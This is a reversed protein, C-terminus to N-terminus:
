LEAGIAEENTVAISAHEQVLKWAGNERHFVATMRFPVDTGDPLVFTGTDATWGVTGEEFATVTGARVKIGADAQGQLMATISAADFYVEDPDTGIFVVGQRASLMGKLADADGCSVADYITHVLETLENSREM